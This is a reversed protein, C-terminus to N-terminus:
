NANEENDFPELRLFELLKIAESTRETRHNDLMVWIQILAVCGAYNDFEVCKQPMLGPKASTSVRKSRMLQLTFFYISLRQYLSFQM